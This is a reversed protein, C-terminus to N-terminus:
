LRTFLKYLYPSGRKVTRFYTLPKNPSDTTQQGNQSDGLAYSAQPLNSLGNRGGGLMYPALLLASLGIQGGGLTYSAQSLDPLGNYRDGHM